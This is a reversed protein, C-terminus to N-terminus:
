KNVKQIKLKMTRNLEDYTILIIRFEQGCYEVVDTDVISRNIWTQFTLTAVDELTTNTESYYGSSKTLQARLMAIKTKVQKVAGTSSQEDVYRYVNLIHNMLGIKM